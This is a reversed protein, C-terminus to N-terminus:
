PKWEPALEDEPGLDVANVFQAIQEIRQFNALVAPLMNEEIKLGAVELLGALEGEGTV